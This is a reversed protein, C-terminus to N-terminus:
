CPAAWRIGANVAQGQLLRCVTHRLGNKVLKRNKVIHGEVRGVDMKVGVVELLKAHFVGVNHELGSVGLGSGRAADLGPHRATSGFKSNIGAPHHAKKFVM